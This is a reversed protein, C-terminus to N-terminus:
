YITVIIGDGKFKVPIDIVIKKQESSEFDMVYAIYRYHEKGRVKVQFKNFGEEWEISYYSFNEFFEIVDDATYSSRIELNYDNTEKNWGRNIHELDFKIAKVKFGDFEVTEDLEQIEINKQKM